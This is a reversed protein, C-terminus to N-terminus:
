ADELVEAKEVTKQVVGGLVCLAPAVAYEALNDFAHIDDVFDFPNWGASLVYRLFRDGNGFDDYDVLM